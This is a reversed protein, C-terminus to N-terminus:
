ARLNGLSLSQAMSQGTCALSPKRNTPADLASKWRRLARRESSTSTSDTGEPNSNKEEEFSLRRRPQIPLDGMSEDEGHHSRSSEDVPKQAEPETAVGDAEKLYELDIANRLKMVPPQHCSALEASLYQKSYAADYEAARKSTPNQHESAVTPTDTRVSKHGSCKENEDHRRQNEPIQFFQAQNENDHSPLLKKLGSKVAKGLKGARFRSTSESISGNVVWKNGGDIQQQHLNANRTREECLQLSQPQSPPIKTLRKITKSPQGPKPISNPSFTGQLNTTWHQLIRSSPSQAEDLLLESHPTLRSIDFGGSPRSLLSNQYDQARTLAAPSLDIPSFYAEHKNFPSSGGTPTELRVANSEERGLALSSREISYHRSQATGFSNSSYKSRRPVSLNMKTMFSRRGSGTSSTLFDEKFRSGFNLSPKKRSLADGLRTGITQMKAERQRFRATGSYALPPADVSNEVAPCNIQTTSADNDSFLINEESSFPSLELSELDEASLHHLNSQSRNPSPQFSPLVSPYDSSSPDVPKLTGIDLTDPELLVHRGLFTANAESQVRNNSLSSEFSVSEFSNKGDHPEEVDNERCRTPLPAEVTSDIGGFDERPSFVQIGPNKDHTESSGPRVSSSRSQLGQAALWIGLSSQEEWAHAGHRIDFENDAGLFRGLRPVNVSCGTLKQSTSSHTSPPRLPHGQDWGEVGSLAPTVPSKSEGGQDQSSGCAEKHHTEASQADQTPPPQAPNLHADEVTFELADRPGIRPQGADILPSLYRTSRHSTSSSEANSEENKLEEQIRQHRFRRLEARRAVEEQSHGASARSRRNPENEHSIHRILKTRVVNLASSTKTLPNEEEGEGDSDDVVLQGLETPDESPLEAPLMSADRSRIQMEVPLRSQDLCHQIDPLGWRMGHEEPSEVLDADGAPQRGRRRFGCCFLMSM